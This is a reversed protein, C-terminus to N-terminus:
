KPLVPPLFPQGNNTLMPGRWVIRGSSITRENASSASEAPLRMPADIDVFNVDHLHRVILRFPDNGAICLYL